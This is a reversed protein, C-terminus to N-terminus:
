IDFGFLDRLEQKMKKNSNELEKNFKAGEKEKKLNLKTKKKEKIKESFISKVDEEITRGFIKLSKEKDKKELKLREILPYRMSLFGVSQAVIWDEKKPEAGDMRTYTINITEGFEKSAKKNDGEHLLDRYISYSLGVIKDKIELYDEPTIAGKEKPVLSVNVRKVKDIDTFINNGSEIEWELEEAFPKLGEKIKILETYPTMVTIEVNIWRKSDEYEEAYDEDFFARVKEFFGM